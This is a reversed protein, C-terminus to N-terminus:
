EKCHYVLLLSACAIAAFNSLGLLYGLHPYKTKGGGRHEWHTGMLNGLINGIAGLKKVEYQKTM